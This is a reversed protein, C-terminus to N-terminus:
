SADTGAPPKAAPAKRTAPKKAPAAPADAVPATPDVVPAEAAPTASADLVPADAAPSVAASAAPAAVAGEPAPGRRVWAMWLWVLAGVVATVVVWVILFPSGADTNRAFTSGIALSLLLLGGDLIAVILISSFTTGGPKRVKGIKLILWSIFYAFVIGLANLVILVISLTALLGQITQLIQAITNGADGELTASNLFQEILGNFFARFLLFGLSLLLGAWAISFLFHGIVGAIVAAAGQGGTLQAKAPNAM